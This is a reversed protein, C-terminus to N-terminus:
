SHLKPCEIRLPRYSPRRESNTPLEVAPFEFILLSPVWSWLAHSTRGKEFSSGIRAAGDDRAMAARNSSCVAAKRSKEVRRTRAVCGQDGIASSVTARLLCIM